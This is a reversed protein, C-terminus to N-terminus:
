ECQASFPAPLGYRLHGVRPLRTWSRFSSRHAFAILTQKVLEDALWDTTAPLHWEDVLDHGLHRFGVGCVHLLCQVVGVNGDAGDDSQQARKLASRLENIEDQANFEDSLAM